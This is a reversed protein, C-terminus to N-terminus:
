ESEKPPPPLPKDDTSRTFEAGNACIVKLQRIFGAGRTYDVGGNSHCATRAFDWEDSKVATNPLLACIFAATAVGIFFLPGEDSM